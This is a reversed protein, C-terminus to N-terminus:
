EFSVAQGNWTRWATEKHESAVAIAAALRFTLFSFGRLVRNYDEECNQALNRKLEMQTHRYMLINYM